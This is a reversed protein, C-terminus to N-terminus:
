DLNALIFDVREPISMAPVQVIPLNLSEYARVHEAHLRDIDDPTEIRYYDSQHRIPALMFVKKFSSSEVVETVDSPETIGNFSLFARADPNARDFFITEAPDLASEKEKQRKLIARQFALVDGRIEELTKGAELGEDILEKATEPVVRFGRKTLENIVSTKGTCVGGAIVYWTNQM